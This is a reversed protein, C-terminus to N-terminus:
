PTPREQPPLLYQALPEHLAGEPRLRSRYLTMAPAAFPGLSFRANLMLFDGLREHDKRSMERPFRALTVHPRFRTRPLSIGVERAARMVKDHLSDLNTGSAAAFLVSPRKGGFLDLGQLTLAVPPLDLGDLAEALDALRVDAVEGLFALTLHLNEEPVIRGVTLGAQVRALPEVAEEPLDLAVFARM